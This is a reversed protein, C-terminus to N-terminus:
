VGVSCNQRRVTLLLSRCIRIFSIRQLDPRYRMLSRLLDLLDPSGLSSLMPQVNSLAHLWRWVPAVGSDHLRKASREVMQVTRSATGSGLVPGRVRSGPSLDAFFRGGAPTCIGIAPSARCHPSFQGTAGTADLGPHVFGSPSCCLTSVYSSGM